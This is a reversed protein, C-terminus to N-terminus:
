SAKKARRAEASKIALDAYYAKREDENKFRAEFAARAASTRATRNETKAWSVHAAKKAKLRVLAETSKPM